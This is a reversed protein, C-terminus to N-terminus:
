ARAEDLKRHPRLDYLWVECWGESHDGGPLSRWYSRGLRTYGRARLIEIIEVHDEWMVSVEHDFRQALWERLYPWARRPGLVDQGRFRALLWEDLQVSGAPYEVGEGVNPHHQVLGAGAPEGRVRIVVGDSALCYARARAEDMRGPLETAAVLAVDRSAEVLMAIVEPDAAGAEGLPTLTIDPDKGRALSPAPAGDLVRAVQELTGDRALGLEIKAVGPMRDLALMLEALSLSTGGLAAFTDDRAVDDRRLLSAWLAALRAETPTAPRREASLERREVRGRAKLTGRDVKGNPSLPLAQMPVFRSPVMVAPLARAAAARLGELDVSPPTVFGVLEDGEALVVAVDALGPLGAGKLSREIEELEIRVGRVKVLNDVRGLYHLNGDTARRVLDGTRFVREGARTPHHPFRVTEEQPRRHYGRALVPGGVYLEGAEGDPLPRGEPDLVLLEAAAMAVGIPVRDDPLPADPRFMAYTVDGTVETTGYINVLTAAPYAARFARLLPLSLEEGSTIWTRLRPLAAALDPLTRVLAALISPVVTIRSVEHRALAAVFRALDAQEEPLLVATPVGQLLGSFMEPGADVFSLSSRHGAVEGPAFPLTEWGWRLRNLTAAHSGCVGKPRGTSGSTYLIYLLDDPAVEPPEIWADGESESAVASVDVIASAPVWEPLTGSAHRGDIVLAEIGADTAMMRQREAPYVPDIPVYAGGARLVGLVAVMSEISRAVGVGVPASRGIGLARLSAAVRDARRRLEGYTCSGHSSVVALDDPRQRAVSDFMRVLSM